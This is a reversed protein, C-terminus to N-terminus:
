VTAFCLLGLSAIALKITNATVAQRATFLGVRETAKLLLLRTGAKCPRPSDVQNAIKTISAMALM